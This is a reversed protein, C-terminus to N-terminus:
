DIKRVYQYPKGTVKDFYSEYTDEVKFFFKTMGTTRGKGVVHYVKKDNRVAEKVELTATGANVLGYHIRFTFSEGSSFASQSFANFATFILVLAILKKMTIGKKPTTFRYFAIETGFILFCFVGTL